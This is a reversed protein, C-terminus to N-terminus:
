YITGDKMNFKLVDKKGEQEYDIFVNNNNDNIAIIKANDTLIDKFTELQEADYEAVNDSMFLVGGFLKIIKGILKQQEATFKINTRRLLFVDPDCLFARGNFCRRYISNNIAHPTSVDERHMHKRLLTHKWWLAMDPGIRMFEVEGFCPMQQVGCGLIKKNGVCERLLDIADYAIEGRTKNHM